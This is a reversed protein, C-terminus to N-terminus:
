AYYMHLHEETGIGIQVLNATLNGTWTFDGGARIYCCPGWRTSIFTICGLFADDDHHHSCKQRALTFRVLDTCDGVMMHLSERIVAPM